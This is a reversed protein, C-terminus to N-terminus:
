LRDGPRLGVWPAFREIGPAVTLPSTGTVIGAWDSGLLEHAPRPVRLKGFEITALQPQTRALPDRAADKYCVVTRGQVGASDAGLRIQRFILNGGFAAIGVGRGEAAELAGRMEASWYEAHGAIVLTRAATANGPHAALDTDAVYGPDYGHDELWVILPFATRLLLGAGNESAFPRDFSVAYGRTPGHAPLPDWHYLSVGNWSDYAEYTAMPIVVTLPAPTAPRVIFLVYSQGGAASLKALYVGSRWSKPIALEYAVPWGMEDLGTAPDPLPVRMPAVAVAPVTLLHTADHAGLRFIDIRAGRDRGALHLGIRGGPVVSVADAYGSVAAMDPRSLRWDTLPAGPAVSFLGSGGSLYGSLATLSPHAVRSALGPDLDPLPWAIRPATFAGVPMPSSAGPSTGADITPSPRAGSAGPPLSSPTAPRLWQSVGLLAVLAVLLPVALLIARPRRLTLPTM